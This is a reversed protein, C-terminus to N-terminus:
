GGRGLLRDAIERIAGRGGPSSLVIRAAARAEPHADAVVVGCGVVQLCELDNVDNGVFVVSAIEIKREGLWEKLAELKDQADQLCALGLKDCRAKVVPNKETSLVLMPIGIRKLRSIGWGDGRNCLVAERGDQFVVVSNDTFVGDFDLVLAGIPDPLERWNGSRQQERLLVEAVQFDVPEDIELCREPPTVCIATKGFFRSKAKRFGETRMVYVAGTELYQPTLNQRLLRGRKDHNIGVVAGRGDRHWLFRHFTTVALASDAGEDILIQVTDDVDQPLTLPSTCQLFVILDPCYRERSELRDLAQLLAVESSADDGSIKAPRRIVEAGFRVSISEIEPDDTTVVVRNVFRSALATEITHAILPKGALFLANKRPVRKSGGKSPILAVIQEPFPSRRM